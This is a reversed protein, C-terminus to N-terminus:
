AQGPRAWPRFYSAVAAVGALLLPLAHGALLHVHTEVPCTVTQASLAVAAGVGVAGVTSGAADRTAALAVMAAPVGSVLGLAACRLAPVLENAAEGHGLWVGTVLALTGVSTGVLAIHAATPARRSLPWGALAAGAVLLLSSVILIIAHAPALALLSTWDARPMAWLAMCVASVGVLVIAAVRFSTPRRRFRALPGQQAAIRREVGSFLVDLEASSPEEPNPKPADSGIPV